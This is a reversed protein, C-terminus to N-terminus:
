LRMSDRRADVTVGRWGKEADKEEVRAGPKERGDTGETQGLDTVQFVGRKGM